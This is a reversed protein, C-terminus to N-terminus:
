VTTVTITPNGPKKWQLSLTLRNVNDTSQLVELKVIQILKKSTLPALATIVQTRLLALSATNIVGPKSPLGLAPDAASGQATVLALYVRQQISDWGVPRGLSDVEYDGTSPNIYAANGVENTATIFLARNRDTGTAPTGFGASSTGAACLGYGVITM